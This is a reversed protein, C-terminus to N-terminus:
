RPQEIANSRLKIIKVLIRHMMDILTERYRRSLLCYIIFNGASNIAMLLNCVNGLIQKIKKNQNSPQHFTDYVIVLATPLQCIIFFIVVAILLRTIHADQYKLMRYRNFKIATELLIQQPNSNKTSRSVSRIPKTVMITAQSSSQLSTRAGSTTSTAMFSNVHSMWQNRRRTQQKVSWILFGNMIALVSLPIFTFVLTIFGLYIMKYTRDRALDSDCLQVIKIDHITTNHACIKWEFYTPLTLTFCIIGILPIMKLALSRTCFVRLRLPFRIAIYREITFLVTLWISTNSAFDCCFILGPYSLLYIVKVPDNSFSSLGGSFLPYHQISLLFSFSLYFTDFIALTALYIHTTSTISRMKKQFMVVLTVLNGFVGVITVMPVLVRQVWFRVQILDHENALTSNPLIM